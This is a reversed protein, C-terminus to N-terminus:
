LIIAQRDGSALRVLKSKSMRGFAESEVELFAAPINRTGRKVKMELV